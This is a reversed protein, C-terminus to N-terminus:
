LENKILLNFLELVLFDCQMAPLIKKDFNDNVQRIVTKDLTQEVTTGVASTAAGIGESLAGIGYMAAGGIKKGLSLIPPPGIKIEWPNARPSKTEWLSAAGEKASSSFDGVAESLKQSLYDQRSKPSHGKQWTEIDKGKVSSMGSNKYVEVIEECLNDNIDPIPSYDLYIYAGSYESRLIRFNYKGKYIPKQAVNKADNAEKSSPFYICYQCGNPTDAVEVNIDFLKVRLANASKKEISSQPPSIYVRLGQVGIQESSSQTNSEYTSTDEQYEKLKIDNLDFDAFDPRYKGNIFYEAGMNDAEWLVNERIERRKVASIPLYDLLEQMNPPINGKELCGDIACLEFACRCFANPHSAKELQEKEFKSEPTRAHLLGLISRRYKQFDETKNNQSKYESLFHQLVAIEEPEFSDIEEQLKIKSVCTHYLEKIVKNLNGILVMNQNLKKNLDRYNKLYVIMFLQQIQNLSIIDSIMMKRDGSGFTVARLLNHYWKERKVRQFDNSQLNFIQRWAAEIDEMTLKNVDVHIDNITCKM